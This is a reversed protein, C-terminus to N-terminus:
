PRIPGSNLYRSRQLADCFSMESWWRGTLQVCQGCPPVTGYMACCFPAVPQAPIYMCANPSVALHFSVFFVICTAVPQSPIYMSVSVFYNVGGAARSSYVSDALRCPIHCGKSPLQMSDNGGKQLVVM